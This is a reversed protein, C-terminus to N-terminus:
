RSVLLCTTEGTLLQVIAVCRSRVALELYVRTKERMFRCEEASKTEPNWIADAHIILFAQYMPELIEWSIDAMLPRNSHKVIRVVSPFDLNMFEDRVGFV